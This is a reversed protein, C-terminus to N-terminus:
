EYGSNKPLRGMLTIEQVPELYCPNRVQSPSVIDTKFISPEGIAFPDCISMSVSKGFARPHPAVLFPALCQAELLPLLM